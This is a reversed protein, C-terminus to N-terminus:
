VLRSSEDIAELELVASDLSCWIWMARIVSYLLGKRHGRRVFRPRGLGDDYQLQGMDMESARLSETSRLVRGAHVTDM